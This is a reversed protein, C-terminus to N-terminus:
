EIHIIWNKELTKKLKKITEFQYPIPMCINRASIISSIEWPYLQSMSTPFHSSSFLVELIFDLNDKIQDIEMSSQVVFKLLIKCHRVIWTCIDAMNTWRTPCYYNKLDEISERSDQIGLNLLHCGCSLNVIM